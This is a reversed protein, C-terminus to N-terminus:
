ENEYGGNTIAVTGAAAIQPITNDSGDRLTTFSPSTLDVRKIGTSMLLSILYSPNIDRGLKAHQWTKYTAVAKSVSAEIDSASSTSTSAIYYTFAINYSAIEPDSVTVSDTLPRVSSDSCAALVAAKVETGAISGDDMLVYLAVTGASPRNAVVDAIDTSAKKAWYVYGGKSGASSYGDASARLLAYYEDDTAADSGDGSTTINECASFYNFVDVITNIQGAAYGNGSAGPTQCQVKVDAYLSGIAIYTDASTEWILTSSADTVRTGKPILVSTSQAASIYFRVTCLAAQASPRVSDYFLEGLADLNSGDARSPLNQNAAYNTLVREQVIINSTWQIFLKEPSAPQVTTGTIKEYASVLLAVVDETDTDVFEYETNRSM